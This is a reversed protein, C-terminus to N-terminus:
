ILVSSAAATSHCRVDLFSTQYLHGLIFIDVKFPNYPTTNSLEPVAQDRGMGGVVLQPQGPELRTAVGFDVFYYRVPADIRRLPTLEHVGDLSCNRRVPHWEQRYLSKADM